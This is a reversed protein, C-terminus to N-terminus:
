YDLQKKVVFGIKRLIKGNKYKKCFYLFNVIQWYLLKPMIKSVDNRACHLSTSFDGADSHKRFSQYATIKGNRKAGTSIVSCM